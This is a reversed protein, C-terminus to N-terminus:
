RGTSHNLLLSANIKNFVLKITSPRMESSLIPMAAISNPRRWGERRWQRRSVKAQREMRRQQKAENKETKGATKVAGQGAVHGKNKKRKDRGSGM